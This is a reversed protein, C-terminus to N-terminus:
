TLNYESDAESDKPQKEKRMEREKVLSTASVGFFSKKMREISEGVSYKKRKAHDFNQRLELCSFEM